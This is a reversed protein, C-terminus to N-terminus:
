SGVQSLLWQLAKDRSDLLGDLQANRARMLLEKFRPGPPLGLSHLDGGAILPPPDLSEPSQSLRQGIYDLPKTDVEGCTVRAALLDVGVRTAPHVLYPQLQSWAIVGATEFIRQSELAFRFRTLDVNSLKLRSKFDACIEKVGRTTAADSDILSYLIASLPAIWDDVEIARLLRCSREGVISWHQALYPLLVDLLGTSAWTRLAFERGNTMLTKHMEASMREGSVISLESAHRSLAAETAAEITFGFRAAFRVARLMRLKDEGIRADSDGISRILGRALDERGGVYDIVTETLPDYFMGNITFDRRAADEAATSFTVADPRRGDSYAADNRFTAVEVQGSMSDPGLVIIVGFAAGVALTRRPGFLQRVQEPRAATAVDYDVPAHELLLDRVCGGAWLAEFGAARLREVVQVAFKRRGAVVLERETSSNM